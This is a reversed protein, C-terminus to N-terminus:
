KLKTVIETGIEGLTPDKDPSKKGGGFSALCRQQHRFQATLTVLAADPMGDKGVRCQLSRSWRALNQM